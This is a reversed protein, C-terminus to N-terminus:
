TTPPSDRPPGEGAVAASAAAVLPWSLPLPVAERAVAEPATPRPCACPFSCPTAVEDLTFTPELVATEDAAFPSPLPPPSPPFPPPPFITADTPNVPGSDVCRGILVTEGSTLAIDTEAEDSPFLLL